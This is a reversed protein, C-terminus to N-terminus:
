RVKIDTPDINHSMLTIRISDDLGGTDKLQRAAEMTAARPCLESTLVVNLSTSVAYNHHQTQM